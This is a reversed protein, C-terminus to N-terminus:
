ARRRPKEERERQKMRWQWELLVPLFHWLDFDPWLCKLFVIHTDQHCQWLMFDSLREVGSTRVFLDLPPCGATYMHADLTEATIDEANPYIAIANAAPGSTCSPSKSRFLTATSSGSSCSEDADDIPGSGPLEGDTPIPADSVAGEFIAGLSAAKACHKSRIKQTIRTQSFATSHPRPTTSFHEVTRRVATTMEERSTYPFCINLIARKNHGTSAVLKHTYKLVDPPILDRQGLIRVSAGYRDLIEGHQALQELKLKALHM